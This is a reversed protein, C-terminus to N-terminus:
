LPLLTSPMQFNTASGEVLNPSHFLIILVFSTRVSELKQDVEKQADTKEQNQANIPASDEPLSCITETKEEVLTDTSAQKNSSETYSSKEELFRENNEQEKLYQETELAKVIRDPHSKEEPTFGAVDVANAWVAPLGCL